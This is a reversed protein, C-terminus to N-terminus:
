KNNRERFKEDVVALTQGLTEHLPSLIAYALEHAHVDQKLKLESLKRHEADFAHFQDLGALAETFLKYVRRLTSEDEEDKTYTNASATVESLVGFPSRTPVEEDQSPFNM